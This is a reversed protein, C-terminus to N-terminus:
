LYRSGTYEQSNFFTISKVDSLNFVFKGIDNILSVSQKVENFSIQRIDKLVIKEKYDLNIKAFNAKGRRLKILLIIFNYLITFLKAWEM